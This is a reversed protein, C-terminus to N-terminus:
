ADKLLKSFVGKPDSILLAIIWALLGLLIVSVGLLAADLTIEFFEGGETRYAMVHDVFWMLTAGWFIFSLLGLKYKDEPANVYWVITATVAAFATM